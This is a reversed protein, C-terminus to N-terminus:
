LLALHKICLHFISITFKYIADEHQLLKRTEKTSTTSSIQKFEPIMSDSISSVHPEKSRASPLNLGLNRQPRTTPEKLREQLLEVEEERTFGTWHRGSRRNEMRIPLRLFSPPEAQDSNM